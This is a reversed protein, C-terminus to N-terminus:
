VRYLDILDRVVLRRLVHGSMGFKQSLSGQVNGEIESPVGAIHSKTLLRCLTKPPHVSVNTSTATKEVSHILTLM